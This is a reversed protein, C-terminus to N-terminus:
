YRHTVTLVGNKYEASVFNDPQFVHELHRQMAQLDREQQELQEIVAGIQESLRVPPPEPVAKKPSFLKQFMKM